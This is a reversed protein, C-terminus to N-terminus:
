RTNRGGFTQAPPVVTPGAPGGRVAGTPVTRSHSPLEKGQDDQDRAQPGCGHERTGRRPGTGGAEERSRCPRRRPRRRHRGERAAVDGEVVGQVLEDGRSTVYPRRGIRAPVGAGEAHRQDDLPIGPGGERVLHVDAGVSGPRQLESLGIGGGGGDTGGGYVHGVGTVRDAGGVRVDLDPDVLEGLDASRHGRGGDLQLPDPDLRGDGVVDHRGRRVPPVVRETGCAGEGSKAVVM